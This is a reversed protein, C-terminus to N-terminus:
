PCVGHNCRRVIGLNRGVAQADLPWGACLIPAFQRSRNDFGKLTAVAPDDDVASRPRLEVEDHQARQHVTGLNAAVRASLELELIELAGHAGADHRKAEGFSQSEVRSGRNLGGREFRRKTVPLTM